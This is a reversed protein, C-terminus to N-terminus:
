FAGGAGGGSSSGSSSTTNLATFKSTIWKWGTGNILHLIFIALLILLITTSITETWSVFM